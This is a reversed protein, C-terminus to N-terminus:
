KMKLVTIRDSSLGTATAVAEVISLRVAARDAGQCLIVAGQYVPSDVRCVLGKECRQSDTIIVTQKRTDTGDESTRSDSDQQYHIAEGTAQTLLVKVDGAGEMHSLIKELTAELPDASEQETSEVHSDHDNEKQSSEPVMMILIGALLIFLVYRYKKIANIIDSCTNSWDM